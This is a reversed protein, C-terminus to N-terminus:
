CDSECLGFSTLNFFHYTQLHMRLNHEGYINIQLSQRVLGRSVRHGAEMPSSHHLNVM